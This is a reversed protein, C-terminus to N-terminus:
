VTSYSLIICYVTPRNQALSVPQEWSHQFCPATSIMPASTRSIHPLPYTPPLFTPMLCVFFHLPHYPAVIVIILILIMRVINIIIIILAICICTYTYIHIYIYIYIYTYICVNYINYIYTYIVCYVFTHICITEYICVYICM